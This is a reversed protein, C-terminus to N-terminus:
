PTSLSVVLPYKDSASLSVIDAHGDGNLDDVLRVKTVTSPLALIQPSPFGVLVQYDGAGHEVTLEDIGDGDFDAAHPGTGIFRALEHLPTPPDFSRDGNGLFLMMDDKGAAVLDPAGDENNFDAVDFRYAALEAAFDGAPVLELANPKRAFVSIRNWGSGPSLNADCNNHSGLALLEPAADGDLDVVRVDAIDGCGFLGHREGSPVWMSELADFRWVRLGLFGSGAVVEARGDQDLDIPVAPFMLADAAEHVDSDYESSSLEVFAGQDLSFVAFHYMETVLVDAVGDANFDAAHVQANGSTMWAVDRKIIAGGASLFCIGLAEVTGLCTTVLDTAQDGDFDGAAVYRASLISPTEEPHYCVGLVEFDGDACSVGGSSSGTDEGVM